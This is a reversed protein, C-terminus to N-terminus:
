KMIKRSFLNLNLTTVKTKDEYNELVNHKEPEFLQNIPNLENIGNKKLNRLLNNYNM